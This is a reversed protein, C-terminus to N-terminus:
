LGGAVVTRDLSGGSIPQRLSQFRMPRLCSCSRRRMRLMRRGSRFFCGEDRGAHARLMQQSPLSRRDIYQLTILFYLASFTTTSDSEM